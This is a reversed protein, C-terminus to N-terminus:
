SPERQIHVFLASINSLSNLKTLLAQAQQPPLLAVTVIKFLVKWLVKTRLLSPDNSIAQGLFRTAVIGKKRDPTGELAKFTLYKYRNGLSQRKLHQLSEPAIAFAKEIVRLSSAEM